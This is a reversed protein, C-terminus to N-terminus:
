RQELGVGEGDRGEDDAAEEADDEGKNALLDPAGEERESREAGGAADRVVCAGRVGVGVGAHRREAEGGGDRDCDAEDAGEEGGEKGVDGEHAGAGARAACAAERGARRACAAERGARAARM